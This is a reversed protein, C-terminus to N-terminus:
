GGRTSRKTGGVELPVMGLEGPVKHSAMVHKLLHSFNVGQANEM